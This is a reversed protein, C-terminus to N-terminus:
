RSVKDEGLPACGPHPQSLPLSLGSSVKGSLLKLSVSGRLRGGGGGYCLDSPKLAFGGAQESHRPKKKFKGGTPLLFSHCPSFSLTAWVVLGFITGQGRKRHCLFLRVTFNQFFCTLEMASDSFPTECKIRCWLCLEEPCVVRSMGYIFAPVPREGICCLSSFYFIEKMPICVIQDCHCQNTCFSIQKRTEEM